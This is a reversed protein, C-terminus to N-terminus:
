VAAPRAAPQAVPTTAWRHICMALPRYVAHAFKSLPLLVLLDMALVVHALFILPGLVSGTPLYVVVETALGTCVTATLLLLFFWDAFGSSRYPTEVARLRRVMAMTLGYLCVLGSITGLMRMPYWPPVNSGIPKFLFDLSTAALMGLFGWVIAAHILWPRRFWPVEPQDADCRRHTQHALADGISAALAAPLAALSLSGSAERLHRGCTRWLMSAVGTLMSLAIIAFLAVGIAHIWPGPLFKFLAPEHIAKPDIVGGGHLLLLTFLASLVLFGLLQGWASGLMLRSIGTFDYCSTVYRRAAGLYQAPDAQRPCTKTCEGCGFCMWLDEDALLAKKMGVQGLRILRRPFGGRDQALPCVATCNGCNFCASVDFAGYAQIRRILKSSVSHAM